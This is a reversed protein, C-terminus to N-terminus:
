SSDASQLLSRWRGHTTEGGTHDLVPGESRDRRRWLTLM